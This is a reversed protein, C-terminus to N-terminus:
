GRVPGGRWEPRFAGGVANCAKTGPSAPSTNLRAQILGFLAVRSGRALAIWKVILCM